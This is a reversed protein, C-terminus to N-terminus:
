EQEERLFEIIGRELKPGVKPDTEISLVFEYDFDQEWETVQGLSLSAGNRTTTRTETEATYTIEKGDIELTNEDIREIQIMAVM